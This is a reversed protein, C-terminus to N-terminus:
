DIELALIKTRGDITFVTGDAIAPSFDAGRGTWHWRKRGTFSEVLGRSVNLGVATRVISGAVLTEGVVAPSSYIDGRFESGDTRWRESGDEADIAVVSTNATTYVTGDGVAPSTWSGGETWRWRVSGDSANVADIGSVVGPLYVMDSDVVPAARVKKVTRRWREEGSKSDVARVDNPNPVYVTGDAVAPALDSMVKPSSQEFSPLNSIRWQEEGTESNYAHFTESCRVYVTGNAVTTAYGEDGPLQTRWREEGNKADLARLFVRDHSHIGRGDDIAFVANDTVTPTGGISGSTRTEWRFEGGEIEFARIGKETGVYLIGDKVVPSTRLSWTSPSQWKTTANKGSLDGTPGYSTNRQNRGFTSWDTKPKKTPNSRTKSCGTIAIAASLTLFKRRSPPEMIRSQGEVGM